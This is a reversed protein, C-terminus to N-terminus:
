HYWTFKKPNTMSKCLNILFPQNDILNILLRSESTIDLKAEIRLDIVLAKIKPFINRESFILLDDIETTYFKVCHDAFCERIQKKIKVFFGETINRLYFHNGM